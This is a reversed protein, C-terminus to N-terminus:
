STLACIASVSFTYTGDADEGDTTNFTARWADNEFVGEGAKVPRSIIMAWIDNGTAFARGAGGGIIRYGTPCEVSVDARDDQDDTDVSEFAEVIQIDLLGSPGQQNWHLPRESSTCQGSGNAIRLAGTYLNVCGRIEGGTQAGAWSLRTGLGMGSAFVAAVVILLMSLCGFTAFPKRLVQM